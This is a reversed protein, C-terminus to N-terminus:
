ICNIRIEDNLSNNRVYEELTMEAPEMTYSCNGEDFSFVQIIGHADQLSKTIEFERKFRGRIGRDTLFDDKFKKVILGTSKQRYVNAFGGDGILVLDDNEQVLHHEKGNRTIKYLDQQLIRNFEKLVENAREAGEVKSIGCDRMLYEISLITDFFSDVRNTNTMDVLKNYVYAWRSPFGQGYQDNTCFYQNFFSVLQASTKYTYFGVTDGCFINSIQRLSSESIM